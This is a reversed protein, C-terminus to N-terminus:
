NAQIQKINSTFNPASRESKTSFTCLSPRFHKLYIKENFFLEFCCTSNFVSNYQDCFVITSQFSLAAVNEFHLINQTDIESTVGNVREHRLGNDYLFWDM